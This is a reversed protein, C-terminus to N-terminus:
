YLPHALLSACVALPARLSAHPDVYPEYIEFGHAGLPPAPITPSDSGARPVEVGARGGPFVDHHDPDNHLM